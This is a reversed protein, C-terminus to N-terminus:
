LLNMTKPSYSHNAKIKIKQKLAECLAFQLFNSCARQPCSKYNQLRPSQDKLLFKNTKGKSTKRCFCCKVHLSLLFWCSDEFLFVCRAGGFSKREEQRPQRAAQLQRHPHLRAGKKWPNQPPDHNPRFNPPPRRQKRKNCNVCIVVHMVMLMLINPAPPFESIYVYRLLPWIDIYKNMYVCIHIYIHIYIYMYIYVHLHIYACWCVHMSM